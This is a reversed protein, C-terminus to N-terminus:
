PHFGGLSPFEKNFFCIGMSPDGTIDTAWAEKNCGQDYLNNIGSNTPQSNPDCDANATCTTSPNIAQGTYSCPTGGDPTYTIDAKWQTGIYLATSLFALNKVDYTSGAPGEFPRQLQPVICLDNSDPDSTSFTGRGYVPNNTDAGGDPLPEITTGASRMAILGHPFNDFFWQDGRVAPCGATATGGNTMKITYPGNASSQIQCPAPAQTPCGSIVTILGVVTALALLRSLTEHIRHLPNM